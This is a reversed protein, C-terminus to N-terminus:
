TQVEGRPLGVADWTSDDVFAVPPIPVNNFIRVFADTAVVCWGGTRYPNDGSQGDRVSILIVGQEMYGKCTDCPEKNYCATRPLTNRLRTDLVVEKVEGCLFCTSMGVYSKEIM